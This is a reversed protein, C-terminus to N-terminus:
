DSPLKNLTDQLIERGTRAAFDGKLASLRGKKVANREFSLKEEYESKSLEGMELAKMAASVVEWLEKSSLKPIDNIIHQVKETM